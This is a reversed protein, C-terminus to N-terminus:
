SDDYVFVNCAEVVQFGLGGLWRARYAFQCSNGLGSKEGRSARPSQECALQCEALLVQYLLPGDSSTRLWVMGVHVHKGNSPLTRM